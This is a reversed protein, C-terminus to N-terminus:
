EKVLAKLQSRVAAPDKELLNRINQNYLEVSQDDSGKGPRAYPRAIPTIAILKRMALKRLAQTVQQPEHGDKFERQLQKSTLNQNGETASQSWLRVLVNYAIEVDTNTWANPDTSATRAAEQLQRLPSPGKVIVQTGRPSAVHYDGRNSLWTVWQHAREPAVGMVTSIHAYITKAKPTRQGSEAIFQEIISGLEQAFEDTPEIESHVAAAAEPSLRPTASPTIEKAPIDNNSTVTSATSNARDQGERPIIFRYQRGGREKGNSEVIAADHLKKILSQWSNNQADESAFHMSSMDITSRKFWNNSKIQTYALELLIIERASLQLGDAIDQVAHSVKSEAAPALSAPAAVPKELSPASMESTAQAPLSVETEPESLDEAIHTIKEERESTNPERPLTTPVDVALPEQSSSTHLRLFHGAAVKSRVEIASAHQLQERALAMHYTAAGLDHILKATDLSIGDELAEANTASHLFSVLQPIQEGLYTSLDHVHPPIIDANGPIHDRTTM